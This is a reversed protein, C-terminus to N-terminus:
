RANVRFAEGPLLPLPEDLKVVVRRGWAPVTFSRRARLPLEEVAPSLEVVQGRLSPAFLGSRHVRVLAGSAFGQLQREPVFAVLHGPRMTVVSIVPAGAALMDGPRQLIASVTGDIPARLTLEGLAFELERLESESVAVAARFPALRAELRQDQETLSRPRRGMQELERATGAPRAQLEAALARQRRRADELESARVLSRARLWTLRKVQEDLARLEARARNEDVYANVALQQSRTLLQSQQDRESALQAKAQLLGAQLRERRLELPRPDLQAVVDGAKVAQGLRVALVKLRGAQLPAVSHVHEEAYGVITGAGLTMGRSLFWFGAVAMAIVVWVPVRGILVRVSDRFTASMSM